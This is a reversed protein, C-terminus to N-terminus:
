LVLGMQRERSEIKHWGYQLVGSGTSGQMAQEIKTMGRKAARVSVHGTVTLKGARNIGWALYPKIPLEQPLILM